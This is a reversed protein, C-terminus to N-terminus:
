FGGGYPPNKEISQKCDFRSTWMTPNSKSIKSIKTVAANKNAM